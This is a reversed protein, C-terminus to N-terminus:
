STLDCLIIGGPIHYKLIVSLAVLILFIIAKTFYTENDVQNAICSM